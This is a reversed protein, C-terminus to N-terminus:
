TPVRLRTGRGRAIPERSCLECEGSAISKPVKFPDRAIRISAIQGEGEFLSLPGGCAAPSPFGQSPQRRL